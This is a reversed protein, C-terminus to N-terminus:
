AIDAAALLDKIARAAGANLRYGGGVTEITARDLKRRIGYVAVKVVNRDNRDRGDWVAPLAGGLFDTSLTRGGASYLLILLKAEQPRVNLREALFPAPDFRRGLEGRLWENEAELDAIRELAETHTM